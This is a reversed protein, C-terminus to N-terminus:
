QGSARSKKKAGPPAPLEFIQGPYILDPDRIQGRNAEFINVYLVGAGYTRRSIAWLTSGPQVVEVSVLPRRTQAVDEAIAVVKEPEERQFPTEVRSVVTGDADLSDIRLTYVGPAVDALNATWVGPEPVELTMLPRNNLYVRVFGAASRGSIQVDGTETYTIADIALDVLAEPGAAPQLVEVGSNGVLLVAPATPEEPEALEAVQPELPAAEPAPQEEEAVTVPADETAPQDTEPQAQEAIAATEPATATDTETPSATSVTPEAALTEEAAVEPVADQAAEAVVVAVEEAAEAAEEVAETVVEVAEEVTGTAQAAEPKAEAVETAETVEASDIPTEEVEEDAVEVTEAVPEEAEAIRTVVPAILVQADSLLVQSGDTASLTVVRAMDSTGLDVFGVFQGAGDAQTVFIEQGDLLISVAWGAPASGAIIASGDAEVRVIDFSPLPLVAEEPETVAAVQEEAEAADTAETETAASVAEAPPAAEEAVVEEAVEEPGAEAEEAEPAEEVTEAVAEPEPAPDDAQAIVIPDAEVIPPESTGLLNTQTVVAWIVAGAVVVALAVRQGM